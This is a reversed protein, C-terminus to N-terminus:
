NYLIYNLHEFPHKHFLTHGGLKPGQIGTKSMLGHVLKYIGSRTLPTGKRGIFVFDSKSSTSSLVLLLRRTEDSIPILREGRKGDVKIYDEGINQKRLTALEGTRGGSDIFLSLITKDRLSEALPPLTGFTTSFPIPM